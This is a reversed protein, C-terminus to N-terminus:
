ATDSTTPWGWESRTGGSYASSARTSKARTRLPSRTRSKFGDADVAGSLEDIDDEGQDWDGVLRTDDDADATDSAIERTAAKDLGGDELLPRAVPLHEIAIM